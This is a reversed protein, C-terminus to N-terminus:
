EDERESSDLAEFEVDAEVDRVALDIELSVEDDNVDDGLQSYLKDRVTDLLAVNVVDGLLVNELSHVTVFLGDHSNDAVYGVRDSVAM